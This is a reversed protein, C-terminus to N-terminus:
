TVIVRKLVEIASELGEVKGEIFTNEELGSKTDITLDLAKRLTDLQKVVSAFLIRKEPVTSKAQVLPAIKKAVIVVGGDACSQCVRANRTEKPSVLIVTRGKRYERGCGKCETM